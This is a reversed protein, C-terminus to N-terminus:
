TAKDQPSIGGPPNMMPNMMAIRSLLVANLMKIKMEPLVFHIVANISIISNHLMADFGRFLSM